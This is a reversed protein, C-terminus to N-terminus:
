EKEGKALEGLRIIELVINSYPEDKNVIYYIPQWEKGHQKRYTCVKVILVDLQSIEDESLAKDIDDNKLVTHTDDKYQFEM